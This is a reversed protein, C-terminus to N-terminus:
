ANENKGNATLLQTKEASSKSSGFFYGLVTAFGSVLGGFMINVMANNSGNLEPLVMMMGTLLFFGGVVVWALVYLNVDKKGTTQVIATERQRASQTDAFEAQTEQLQIRAAEISLEELRERHKMELEKLKTMAEPDAQLKEMLEQPNNEGFIGAVLTGVAGGAPGGILSGLLPAGKKVFNGVDEWSM